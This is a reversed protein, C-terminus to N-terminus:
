KSGEHELSYHNNKRLNDKALLLQMNQECHLGCVWNSKLPYIHDVHVPSGIRQQELKAIKYFLNMYGLNAWAPTQQKIGSRRAIVAAKKEAPRSERNRKSAARFSERKEERRKADYEQKRTKNESYWVTARKLERAPRCGGCVDKDARSKSM